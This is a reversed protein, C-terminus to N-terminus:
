PVSEQVFRVFHFSRAVEDFPPWDFGEYRDIRYVDRVDEILYTSARYPEGDRDEYTATVLLGATGPGLAVPVAEADAPFDRTVIERSTVDRLHAVALDPVLPMEDLWGHAYWQSEGRLVLDHGPPLRLAFGHGVDVVVRWESPSVTADTRDQATAAVALLAALLFAPLLSAPLARRSVPPVSTPRSNPWPRRM